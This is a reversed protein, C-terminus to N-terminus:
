WQLQQAWSNTGNKNLLPLQLCGDVVLQPTNVTSGLSSCNTIMMWGDNLIQQGMQKEEWAQGSAPPMQALLM